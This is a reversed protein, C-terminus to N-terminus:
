RSAESAGNGAIESTPQASHPRAAPMMHGPVSLRAAAFYGDPPVAINASSASAPSRPQEVPGVSTPATEPAAPPSRFIPSVAAIIKGIQRKYVDLHTYSVPRVSFSTPRAATGAVSSDSPSATAAVTEESRTSATAAAPKRSQRKYVDVTYRLRQPKDGLGGMYTETYEDIHRAASAEIFATLEARDISFGGHEM